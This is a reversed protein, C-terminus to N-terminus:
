EVELEKIRMQAGDLLQLRHHGCLPCEDYRHQVIVEQACGACRALGPITIVELSAHEALSGQMVVGFSFRLAEVEVGALAGIELYVVKVQQFNQVQAQHELTQLISECLSMEHM